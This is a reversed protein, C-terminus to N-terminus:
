NDISNDLFELYWEYFKAMDHLWIILCHEPNVAIQKTCKNVESPRSQQVEPNPRHTIGDQTGSKKAFPGDKITDIQKNEQKLRVQAKRPPSQM